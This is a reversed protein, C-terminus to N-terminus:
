GGKLRHISLQVVISLLFVSGGVLLVDGISFYLINGLNFRDSFYYGKISTDTTSFHQETQIDESTIVPMKGENYSLVLFNCTMGVMVIFMGLIALFYKKELYTPKHHQEM